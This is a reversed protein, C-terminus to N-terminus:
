DRPSSYINNMATGMTAGNTEQIPYYPPPGLPFTVTEDERFDM